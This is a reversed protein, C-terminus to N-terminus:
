ALSIRGGSKEQIRGEVRYRKKGLGGVRNIEGAKKMGFSEYRRHLYTDWSTLLCFHTQFGQEKFWSLMFRLNQDDIGQRRFRPVTYVEDFFIEKPALDLTRSLYPLYVSGRFAWRIGVPERGLWAVFCIHGRRLREHLRRLDYHAPRASLLLPMDDPGAVTLRAPISPSFPPLATSVSGEFLFYRRHLMWPLIRGFFKAPGHVRCLDRGVTVKRVLSRVPTLRTEHSLGATLAEDAQGCRADDTM